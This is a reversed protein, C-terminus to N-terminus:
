TDFQRRLKEVRSRIEAADRFLEIGAIGRAGARIVEPANRVTIGGVAIVPLATARCVDRLVPIGAAVHGPPKNASPFVTGFILYDCGGERTAAAAEGPDHVSRGIIFGAPAVTRVRAAALSDARLHVGAARAALAIDLRDNVLVRCSTGATMAIAEHVMTLLSAAPLAPERIQVLDVGSAGAARISELSSGDGSTILCIIM